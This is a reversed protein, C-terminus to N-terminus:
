FEEFPIRDATVAAASLERLEMEAAQPENQLGPLNGTVISLDPAAAVALIRALPLFAGDPIAEDDIDAIFRERLNDLVPMVLSDVRSYVADSPAEGPVVEVLVQLARTVLAARNKSM